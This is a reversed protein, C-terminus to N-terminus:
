CEEEKYIAHSAFSRGSNSLLDSLGLVKGDRQPTPGIATVLYQRPSASSPSDYSDLLNPYSVNKDRIHLDTRKVLRLRM